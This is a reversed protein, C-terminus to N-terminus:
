RTQLFNAVTPSLDNKRWILQMYLQMHPKTLKCFVVESARLFRLDHQLTIGINSAVLALGAPVSDVFYPRVPEFGAERCARVFTDYLSCSKWPNPFIFTEKALMALRLSKHRALPHTRNLAVRVAIPNLSMSHLTEDLIKEDTCGIDVAGMRVKDVLVELPFEGLLLATDPHRKRFNRIRVRLEGLITTPTFGISLTGAKGAAAHQSAHITRELQELTAIAQRYFVKGAITLKVERSNREFLKIGLDDEIQRINQSLAPQALQLQKAAMTFNMEKVLAVMYRLHRFEIM